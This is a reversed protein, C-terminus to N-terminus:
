GRLEMSLFHKWMPTHRCAVYLSLLRKYVRISFKRKALGSADQTRMFEIVKKKDDDTFASLGLDNFLESAQPVNDPAIKAVNTEIIDMIQENTFIMSLAWCRDQLAQPVKPYNTFFVLSSDFEFDNSDDIGSGGTMDIVENEENLKGIEKHYGKYEKETLYFTGTRPDYSSSEALQVKIRRPPEPDLAAKLINEIASNTMDTKTVVDDLVVIEGERHKYLLSVLGTYGQIKGTM